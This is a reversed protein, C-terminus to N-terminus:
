TIGFRDTIWGCQIPQGGESLADWLRDVESQAACELFLSVSMSPTSAPGNLLMFRGGQFDLTAAILAGGQGRMDDRVRAAPLLASYFALAEAARGEFMLCPMFM